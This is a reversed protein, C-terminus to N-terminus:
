KPKFFFQDDHEFSCLVDLLIIFISTNTPNLIHKQLEFERIFMKFQEFCFINPLFSFKSKKKPEDNNIAIFAM